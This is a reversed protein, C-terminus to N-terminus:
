VRLIFVSITCDLFPYKKERASVMSWLIPYPQLSLQSIFSYLDQYTTEMGVKYGQWKAMGGGLLVKQVNSDILDSPATFMDVSTLKTYRYSRLLQNVLVYFDGSYVQDPYYFNDTSYSKLSQYTRYYNERQKLIMEAGQARLRINGLLKPELYYYGVWLVLGMLFVRQVFQSYRVFSWLWLLCRKQFLWLRHWNIAKVSFRM